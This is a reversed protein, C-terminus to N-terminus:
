LHRYIAGHDRM